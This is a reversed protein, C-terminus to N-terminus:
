NNLWTQSKAVRHLTAWWARRDMSNELCSVPTPQWKRRWPIMGVWPDFGHRKHRRCQCSSEKGSAAGLFGGFFFLALSFQYMHHSGSFISISCLFENIFLYHAKHSMTCFIEPLHVDLTFALPIVGTKSMNFTFHSKDIWISINLLCNFICIQFEASDPSSHLDSIMLM